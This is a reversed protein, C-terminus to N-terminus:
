SVIGPILVSGGEGWETISVLDVISEELDTKIAISYAKGSELNVKINGIGKNVYTFYKHGGKDELIVEYEVYINFGNASFDQPIVMVHSDDANLQLPASSNAQTLAFGNADKGVFHAPSLTFSQAGACDSWDATTTENYLNLKGQEYFEGVGSGTKDTAGTLMVRKVRITMGAPLPSAGDATAYVTFDIRALAHKFEFNVTGSNQNMDRTDSSSWCLDIHKTIDNDVSYAIKNSNLAFSSVYPAYAFFSVKDTQTHPWYKVPAYKWSAGNNSSTVKTNNIFNPALTEDYTDWSMNETYYAFVGFGQTCMLGETLVKGRTLDNWDEPTTVGFSVPEYSIGEGERDDNSCSMPLLLGGLVAVMLLQARIYKFIVM